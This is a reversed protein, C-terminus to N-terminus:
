RGVDTCFLTRHALHIQFWTPESFVDNLSSTTSVFKILLFALGPGTQLIARIVIRYRPRVRGFIVPASYPNLWLIKGRSEESPEPQPGSSQSRHPERPWTRPDSGRSPPARAMTRLYLIVRRPFEGNKRGDRRSVQMM